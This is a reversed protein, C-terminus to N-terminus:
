TQESRTLTQTTSKNMIKTGWDTAAPTSIVTQAQCRDVLNSATKYLKINVWLTNIDLYFLM